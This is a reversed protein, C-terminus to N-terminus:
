VAYALLTALLSAACVAALLATQAREARFPQSALNIQRTGAIKM